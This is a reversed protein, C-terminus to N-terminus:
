QSEPLCLCRSHGGLMAALMTTGSRECGGIFLPRM